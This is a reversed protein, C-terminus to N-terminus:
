QVYIDVFVTTVGGRQLFHYFAFVLNPLFFHWFFDVEAIDGLRWSGHGSALFGIPLPCLTPLYNLALM